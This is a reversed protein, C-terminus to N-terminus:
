PAAITIMAANGFQAAPIAVDIVQQRPRLQVSRTPARGDWALASSSQLTLMGGNGQVHLAQPQLSLALACRSKRMVIRGDSASDSCGCARDQVRLRHPWRSLLQVGTGAGRRRATRALAIASASLRLPFADLTADTPGM